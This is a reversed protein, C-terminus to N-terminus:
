PRAPRRASPYVRRRSLAPRLLAGPHTGTLAPGTSAFLLQEELRKVHGELDRSGSGLSKNEDQLQRLEAQLRSAVRQFDRLDAAGRVAEASSAAAQDM